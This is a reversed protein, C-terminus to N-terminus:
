SYGVFKDPHLCTYESVRIIRDCLRTGPFSDLSNSGGNQPTSTIKGYCLSAFVLPLFPVLNCRSHFSAVGPISCPRRRVEIVM